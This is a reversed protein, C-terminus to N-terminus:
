ERADGYVGMDAEFVLRREADVAGVETDAVGLEATGMEMGSPREEGLGARETVGVGGEAPGLGIIGPWERPTESAGCRCNGRLAAWPWRRWSDSPAVAIMSRPRGLFRASADGMLRETEFRDGELEAARRSSCFAKSCRGDPWGAVVAEERMEAESTSVRLFCAM